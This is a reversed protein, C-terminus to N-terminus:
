VSDQIFTFGKVLFGHVPTACRQQDCVERPLVSTGRARANLAAVFVQDITVPPSGQPLVECVFADRTRAFHATVGAHIGVRVAGGLDERWAMAGRRRAAAVASVGIDVM